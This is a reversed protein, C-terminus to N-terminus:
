HVPRYTEPLNASVDPFLAGLAPNTDVLEYERGNKEVIGADHLHDLHAFAEGPGHLIHIAHLDGFLAASVEWPTAPGDRLVGVVRETRERHHDIIDAARGPPDIIAGRHGPWARTYGTEVIDTLTDLYKALPADVRVDAGGVNPTYYPLLADGSFVERGDAGDFAFGTLGATHGPMHVAELETSGVDFREGGAFSTVEPDHGEAEDGSLFDALAEFPGDPMGWERLLTRMEDDMAGQGRSRTEIYDADAEHAHVVCDSAAQIDGALGAHDQHWHTLFLRDVDAFGVGLDALGTRLTEETDPHHIGTDVLTLEADPETGLVYCNNLGEFATNGLRISHLEFLLNM